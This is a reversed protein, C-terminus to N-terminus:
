QTHPHGYRQYPKRKKVGGKAAKKAPKPAAPVVPAPAPAAQKAAKAPPPTPKPSETPVALGFRGLMAAAREVSKDVRLSHEIPNEQDGSHKLPQVAKGYARDLLSDIAKLDGSRAKNVYQLFIDGLIDVEEVTMAKRQKAKIGKAYKNNYDAAFKEALVKTAMELRTKFNLIGKPKGKPNGSQGPKFQTDKGNLSRPDPKREIAQIEGSNM